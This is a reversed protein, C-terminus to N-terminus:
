QMAERKISCVHITFSVLFTAVHGTCQATHDITDFSTQNYSLLSIFVFPKCEVLRASTYEHTSLRLQKASYIDTRQDM